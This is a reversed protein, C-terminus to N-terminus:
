GRLLVQNIIHVTGNSGEVDTKVIHVGNVSVNSADFRLKLGGLTPTARRSDARELVTVADLERGVVHDLLVSKLTDVPIDDLGAVGLKGLLAVFADNTPAFVTFRGSRDSLVDALGAKVVAQLLISTDPIASVIGAITPRPDPDLLVTDIKHVVGNSAALNAAVVHANNVGGDARDFDIKLGGLTTPRFDRLDFGGLRAASNREALVHDLLIDKLLPTPVDDLSSAGVLGLLHVFAQNTPAFVTFKANKDALADVLGAKVVAQVLISLDPDSQALQVLNPKPASKAVAPPAIVAATGLAAVLMSAAAFSRFRM